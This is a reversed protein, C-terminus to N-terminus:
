PEQRQEDAAFANDGRAIVICTMAAACGFLIPSIAPMLAMSVAISSWAIGIWRYGTWFNGSKAFLVVSTIAAWACYFAPIMRSLDHALLIRLSIMCAVAGVAHGIWISWLERRASDSALHIRQSMFFVVFLPAYGTFIISWIWFEAAQEHLLTWVIVNSILLWPAVIMWLLNRLGPFYQNWRPRNLWQALEDAFEQASQQRLAPNESMSKRCIKLLEPPLKTSRSVVAVQADRFELPSRGTLTAWLTAGLSYIDSSVSRVLAAEQPSAQQMAAHLLEPAMYAPTGAINDSASDEQIEDGQLEFCLDFEALGFDTILPRNTEREILINHPKIDGHLVGHRHVINVARAIKEMVVAVQEPAVSANGRLEQLSVGEVFQMSFWPRGDVEGVQYVPVINEHAVYAALRLEREFRYQMQRVSEPSIDALRDPRIVKIADLRKLKRHLGRYVVGMGGRGIEELGEYEPLQPPSDDAALALRVPAALHEIMNYLRYHEAVAELTRGEAEGETSTLSALESRSGSEAVRELQALTEDDAADISSRLSPSNM